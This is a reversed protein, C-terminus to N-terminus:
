GGSLVSRGSIANIIDSFSILVMLCMLMAFGVAHVLAEKEPPVRKGRRVLELLAFLIRSGDLAPIPLLNFLFLNISLVATWSWFGIAGQQQIIEGTGRAIGIPGAVGGAPAAVSSDFLSRVLQVLGDVLLGVLALTHTVGRQIATLIGAPRNETVPEYSIGLGIIENGEATTWPGPTVTLTLQEEGRQVLATVPKGVSQRAVQSVTTSDNIPQDNLRMLLDDPKLGAAAAPTAPYVNTVRAQIVTPVGNALFMSAFIVMALLLNMLPGAILVVIRRWPAANALGGVGAIGDDEGAFRVFGGLPLWNLTYQVGNREFMTLMRPPYGFGFEEVKIGMRVAPLFHGLEHVFVLLGLMLIFAVATVLWSPLLQLLEM